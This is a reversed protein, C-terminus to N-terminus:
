WGGGLAQYLQVYNQMEAFWAQQLQLESDFYQQQTTLVELFSTVGGLFRVNALRSTEKYTATQEQLKIRFLRSQNYGVLANSVDAFAQQVTQKYTLEAQDRQVCPVCWSAWFDVLVVHGKVSDPDFPQWDLTKLKLPPAVFGTLDISRDNLFLRRVRTAGSPPSFSFLTLLTHVNEIACTILPQQRQSILDPEQFRRDASRKLV